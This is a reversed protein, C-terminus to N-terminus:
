FILNHKVEELVDLREAVEKLIAMTDVAIEEEYLNGSNNATIAKTKEEQLMENIVRVVKEM